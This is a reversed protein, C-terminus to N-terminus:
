LPCREPKTFSSMFHCMFNIFKRFTLHTDLQNPYRMMVVVIIGRGMESVFKAMLTDFDTETLLLKCIEEAADAIDDQKIQQYVVPNEAEFKRFTSLIHRAINYYDLQHQYPYHTVPFSQDRMEQYYKIPINDLEDISSYIEKDVANIEQDSAGSVELISKNKHNYFRSLNLIAREETVETNEFISGRLKWKLTKDLNYISHNEHFLATYPPATDLTQTLGGSFPNLATLIATSYVKFPFILKNSGSHLVQYETLAGSILRDTNFGAKKVWTQVEVAGSIRNEDKLVSLPDLPPLSYDLVYKNKTTVIENDETVQETRSIFDHLPNDYHYRITKTVPKTIPIGAIWEYMYKDFKPYDTFLSQGIDSASMPNTFTIFETEATLVKGGAYISYTENPTLLNLRPQLNPLYYDTYSNINFDMLGDPSKVTNNQNTYLNGINPDLQYRSAKVQELIRNFPRAGTNTFWSPIVDTILLRDEDSISYKFRQLEMLKDDESYFCKAVLLNELWYPCIFATALAGTTFPIYRYGIRGNGSIKEEVYDYLIGNNGIEYFQGSPDSLESNIVYDTFPGGSFANGQYDLKDTYGDKKHSVIKGSSLNNVLQGYHNVGSFNYKYVRSSGIRGNEDFTEIAKIRLGGIKLNNPLNPYEEIGPYPPLPTENPEFAFKTIGGLPNTVQKLTYNLMSLSDPQRNAFGTFDYPVASHNVHPMSQDFYWAYYPNHVTTSNDLPVETPFTGNESDPNQKTYYGWYDKNNLNSNINYDFKYKLSDRTDASKIVVDKLLAHTRDHNGRDYTFLCKGVSLGNENVYTIGSLLRYGDNSTTQQDIYKFTIEAAASKITRLNLYKIQSTYALKSYGMYERKPNTFMMKYNLFQEQTFTQAAHDAISHLSNLSASAETLQMLPLYMSKYDSKGYNVNIDDRGLGYSTITNVLDYNLKIYNAYYGIAPSYLGMTYALNAQATKINTLYQPNKVDPYVMPSGYLYLQNSEKYNREPWTGEQYEFYISEENPIDIQNLKWSSTLSLIQIQSSSNPTLYKLNETHEKDIFTYKIGNEDKIIFKDIISNFLQIDVVLNNRELFVPTIIGASNKKLFFKIARGNFSAVFLDSEGDYIGLNILKHYDTDNSHASSMLFGNPLEDAKGGRVVRTVAGGAELGWNLGCTGAKQDVKVGGASYFLSVPLTFGKRQLSFLPLSYNLIGTSPNVNTAGKDKLNGKQADTGPQFSQAHNKNFFAILFLFLLFSRKINM